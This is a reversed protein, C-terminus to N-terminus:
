HTVHTVIGSFNIIKGTLSLKDLWQAREFFDSPLSMNYEMLLINNGSILRCAYLTEYLILGNQAKCERYIWTIFPHRSHNHHSNPCKNQTGSVSSTFCFFLLRSVIGLLNERFLFCLLRKSLQKAKRLRHGTCSAKLPIQFGDIDPCITLENPWPFYVNSQRDQFKSFWTEVLEHMNLISFSILKLMVQVHVNWCIWEQMPIQKEHMNVFLQSCKRILSKTSKVLIIWHSPVAYEIIMMFVIRRLQMRLSM